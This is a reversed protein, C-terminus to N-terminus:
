IELFGEVIMEKSKERGIGRSALYFLTEEGIEEVSAEHCAKVEPNEIELSPISFVEGEDFLLFKDSLYADAGQAGKEIIIKGQLNIKGKERAIGRVATRSFSEKGQHINELNLNIKQADKAQPLCFIKAKAKDELIIRSSFDLSKTPSLHYEIEEGKKVRIEREQDKFKEILKSNKIKMKVKSNQM